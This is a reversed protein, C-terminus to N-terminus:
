SLLEVKCRAGPSAALRADTSLLAADLVEALAVYAADSVTVNHRLEWCRELLPRHDVRELRLDTLDVMAQEVRRESLAGTSALRRWVSLVELDLLAPAILREGRLRRRALAGDTGDDALATAVVGADVVIL